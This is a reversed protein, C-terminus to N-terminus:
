RSATADPGPRQAPPCPAGRVRPRQCRRSVICQGYALVNCQAEGGVLQARGRQKTKTRRKKRRVRRRTAFGERRSIRESFVRRYTRFGSAPQQFISACSTNGTERTHKKKLLLSLAIDSFRNLAVTTLAEPLKAPNFRRAA